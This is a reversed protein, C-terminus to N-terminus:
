TATVGETPSRLRQVFEAWDMDGERYESDWLELRGLMSAVEPSPRVAASWDISALFDALRYDGPGRDVTESVVARVQGSTFPQRSM